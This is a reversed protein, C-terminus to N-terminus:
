TKNKWLKKSEIVLAYCGDHAAIGADDPKATDIAFSKGCVICRLATSEKKPAEKQPSDPPSTNM